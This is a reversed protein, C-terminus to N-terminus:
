TNDYGVGGVGTKPDFLTQCAQPNKQELISRYLSMFIRILTTINLLVEYIIHAFVRVNYRIVYYRICM